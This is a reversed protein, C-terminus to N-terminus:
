LWPMPEGPQWVNFWSCYPFWQSTVLFVVGAWFGNRLWDSALFWQNGLMLETAVVIALSWAWRVVHFGHRKILPIRCYSTHSDMLWLTCEGWLHDTFCINSMNKSTLMFLSNLLCHLQYHNQFIKITMHGSQLLQVHSKLWEELLGTYELCSGNRRSIHPLNYITNRSCPISHASQKLPKASCQLQEMALAHYNNGDQTLGDDM